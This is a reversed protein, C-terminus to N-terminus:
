LNIKRIIQTAKEDIGKKIDEYDPADKKQAKEAKELTKYEGLKDYPEENFRVRGDIFGGSSAYPAFVVEREKAEYEKRYLTFVFEEEFSRQIIYDPSKKTM